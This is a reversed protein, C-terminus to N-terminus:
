TGTGEQNRARKNKNFAEYAGDIDMMDENSFGQKKCKSKIDALSLNMDFLIALLKVEQAGDGNNGEVKSPSVFSEVTLSRNKSIPAKREFQHISKMEILLMTVTKKSVTPTLKAMVVGAHGLDDAFIKECPFPLFIRFAWFKGHMHGNSLKWNAAKAPSDNGFFCKFKNELLAHSDHPDSFVEDIPIKFVFQTGDKEIALSYSGETGDFSSDMEMQIWYRDHRDASYQGDSAKPMFAVENKEPPAIRALVGMTSGPKKKGAAAAAPAAKSPTAATKTAPAMKIRSWVIDENSSRSSDEDSSENDEHSSEIDEFIEEGTEAALDEVFIFHCFFFTTLQRLPLFCHCSFFM